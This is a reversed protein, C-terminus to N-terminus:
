LMKCIKLTLANSFSVRCCTNAPNLIAFVVIVINAFLQCEAVLIRVTTNPNRATSNVQQWHAGSDDTRYLDGPSSNMGHDPILMLWGVDKDPFALCADMINYSQHLESRLWSRGGARTRFLTMNTAEDFVDAVWATESDYFFPALKDKPSTRLVCNWSLGGNTTSMIANNGFEWTNSRLIAGAEQAWGNESDVMHISQLGPEPQPQKPHPRNPTANGDYFYGGGIDYLRQIVMPAHHRDYRFVQVRGERRISVSVAESFEATNDSPPMQEAIERLSLIQSHSLKRTESTQEAWNYVERATFVTYDQINFIMVMGVNPGLFWICRIENTGCGALYDGFFKAAGGDDAARIFFPNLVLLIFLYRLM